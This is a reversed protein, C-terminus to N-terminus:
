EAILRELNSLAQKYAGDAGVVISGPKRDKQWETYKIYEILLKAGAKIISDTQSM